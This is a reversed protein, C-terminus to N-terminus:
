LYKNRKRNSLRTSACSWISIRKAHLVSLKLTKTNPSTTNLFM